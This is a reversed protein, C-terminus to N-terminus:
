LQKILMKMGLIWLMLKVPVEGLNTEGGVDMEDGLREDREDGIDNKDRKDRVNRKNIIQEDCYFAYKREFFKDM